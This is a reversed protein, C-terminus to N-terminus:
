EKLQVEIIKAYKVPQGDKLAPKFTWNKAARLLASDFAPHMPRLITVDEVTGSADIILRVLGVVTTGNGSTGTRRWPPMQQSLAVPVSVTPDDGGYISPAAPVPAAPPLAPVPAPPPAVPAAAASAAVKARALTLLGDAVLRLDDLGAVDKVAPDSVIRVVRDLLDASEQHEERAYLAKADAFYKRAVRPLLERRTQNFLVAIKPTVDAEAPLYLPQQEVIRRVAARAEGQRGIALLCLARYQEAEIATASDTGDVTALATLADEYSASAYLERISAMQTQGAAPSSVLVILGIGSVFARARKM